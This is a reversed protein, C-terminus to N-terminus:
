ILYLKLYRRQTRSLLVSVGEGTSLVVEAGGGSSFFSSSGSMASPCSFVGIGPSSTYSLFYYYDCSFRPKKLFHHFIVPLFQQAMGNGIGKKRRSPAGSLCRITGM